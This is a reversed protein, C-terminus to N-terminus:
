DGILSYFDDQYLVSKIVEFAKEKTCPLMTKNPYHYFENDQITVKSKSNKVLIIDMIDVIWYDQFGIVESVMAYHIYKIDLITFAKSFDYSYITIYNM